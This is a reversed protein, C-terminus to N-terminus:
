SSEHVSVACSDLDGELYYVEDQPRNTMDEIMTHAQYEEVTDPAGGPRLCKIWHMSTHEPHQTYGCCACAPELCPCNPQSEETTALIARSSEPRLLLSMRKHLVSDMTDTWTANPWLIQFPCESVQYIGAWSTSICSLSLSAHCPVTLPSWLSAPELSEKFLTSTPATPLRSQIIVM